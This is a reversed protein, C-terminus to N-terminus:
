ELNRYLESTRWEELTLYSGNVIDYYYIESLDAKVFFWDWNVQHNGWQEGVYIYYGDDGESNPIEEVTQCVYYILSAVGESEREIYLAYAELEPVIEVFYQEVVNKKEEVHQYENSMSERQNCFNGLVVVFAMLIIVEFIKKKQKM